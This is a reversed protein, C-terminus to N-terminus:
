KLTMGQLSALCSRKLDQYSAKLIEKKALIIVAQGAKVQPLLSRVAESLRRKIKNRVVARKDLKKSVLFAFLSQKM